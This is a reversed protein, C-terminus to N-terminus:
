SRRPASPAHRIRCFELLPPKVALQPTPSAPPDLALYPAVTLSATPFVLSHGPAKLARFRYPGPGRDGYLGAATVAADFLGSVRFCRFRRVLVKRLFVRAKQPADVCPCSILICPPVGGPMEGVRLIPTALYSFGGM